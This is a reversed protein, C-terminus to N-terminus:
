NFLLKCLRELRSLDITSCSTLNVGKFHHRFRITEINLVDQKRVQIIPNPFKSLNVIFSEYLLGILVMKKFSKIIFNLKTKM